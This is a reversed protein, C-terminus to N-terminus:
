KFHVAYCYNSRLEIHSRKSINSDGSIGIRSSKADREIYTNNVVRGIYITVLMHLRHSQRRRVSPILKIGVEAHKVSRIIGFKGICFIDGYYYIGTGCAIEIIDDDRLCWRAWHRSIHFHNIYFIIFRTNTPIGTSSFSLPM